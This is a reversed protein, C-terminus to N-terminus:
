PGLENNNMNVLYYWSDLVYYDSYEVRATFLFVVLNWLILLFKM